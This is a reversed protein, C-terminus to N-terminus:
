TRGRLLMPLTFSYIENSSKGTGDPKIFGYGKEKQLTVIVGQKTEEM